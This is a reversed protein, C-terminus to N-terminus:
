VQLQTPRLNAKQSQINRVFSGSARCEKAMIEGLRSAEEYSPETNLTNCVQLIEIRTKLSSLLINQISTQTFVNSPKSIPAASTKEDVDEDNINAPAETDFDGFFILSRMGSEVSFQMNLEVITAWLRRRIEAQLVSMGQFYKPDRHLGMSFARRVLSGTSIWVLDEVVAVSQRAILLLCHLQLGAINLRSKEYPIESLWSQAAYVWKKAQTRLIEADPEQYFTVGIAMALLMNLIFSDSALLPQHLYQDYEKRFTPIHFIRFVSESTRFYADLLVECTEPSPISARFDRDALWENYIRM